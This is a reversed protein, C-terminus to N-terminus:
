LGPARCCSLRSLPHHGSHCSSQDAYCGEASCARLGLPEDFPCPECEGTIVSPWSAAVKLLNSEGHRVLRMPTARPVITAHCLDVQTAHFIGTHCSLRSMRKQKAWLEPM